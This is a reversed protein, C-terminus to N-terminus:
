TGIHIRLGLWATAPIGASSRPTWRQRKFEAAAMHEAEETPTLWRRKGLRSSKDLFPMSAEDVVDRPLGAKDILMVATLRLPGVHWPLHPFIGYRPHLPQADHLQHCISMLATAETCLAQHSSASVFLRGNCRSPIHFMLARGGFQDLNVQNYVSTDYSLIVPCDWELSTGRQHIRAVTVTNRQMVDLFDDHLKDHVNVHVHLLDPHGDSPTSTLESYLHQLFVTEGDPIYMDYVKRATPFDHKSLISLM